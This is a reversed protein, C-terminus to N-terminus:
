LNYKWTSNKFFKPLSDSINDPEKKYPFDLEKKLGNLQVIFCNYQFFYLLKGLSPSFFHKNCAFFATWLYQMILLAEISFSNSRFVMLQKVGHFFSFFRSIVATLITRSYAPIISSFVFIFCNQSSFLISRCCSLLSIWTCICTMPLNHPISLLAANKQIMLIYKTSKHLFLFFYRAIM